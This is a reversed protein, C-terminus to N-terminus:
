SDGPTLEVVGSALMALGLAILGTRTPGAVDAPLDKTPQPALRRTPDYLISIRDWRRGAAEDTTTLKSVYSGPCNVAHEYYTTTTTDGNTDRETRTYERLATITCVAVRGRDKFAQADVADVASNAAIVMGFFSVATAVISLWHFGFNHRSGFVVILLINIWLGAVVATIVWSPVIGRPGFADLCTATFAMGVAAVASLVSLTVDLLRAM